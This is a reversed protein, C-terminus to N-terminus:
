RSRAATAIRRGLVFTLWAEYAPGPLTMLLMFALLGSDFPERFESFFGLAGWVPTAVQFLAIAGLLGLIPRRMNGIMGTISM